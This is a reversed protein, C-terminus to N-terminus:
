KWIACSCWDSTEACKRRQEAFQHATHIDHALGVDLAGNKEKLFFRDIGLLFTYSFGVRGIRIVYFYPFTKSRRNSESIQIELLTRPISSFRANWDNLIQSPHRHRLEFKGALTLATTPLHFPLNRSFFSHIVQFSILQLWEWRNRKPKYVTM